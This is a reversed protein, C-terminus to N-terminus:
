VVKITENMEGVKEDRRSEQVRLLLCLIDHVSTVQYRLVISVIRRELLASTLAFATLAESGSQAM